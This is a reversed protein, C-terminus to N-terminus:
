KARERQDTRPHGDPGMGAARQARLRRLQKTSWAYVQEIGGPFMTVAVLLMAGYLVLRWEEAIQLLQPLISFILAATVVGRLSALGGVFVMILLTTTYSTDVASPCVVTQYHTLFAGCIATLAASAGFAILRSQLPWIGRTDALVPDDRVATFALSLRSRVLLLIIGVTVCAIALVLYYNGMLDDVVVSGFPLEFTAPPIRTLCLLGGTVENWNKAILQAGLTFGLTGIAFTWDSLRFSPIGIALALIVATPAILLVELIFDNRLYLSILAAGYAGWGIFVPQALSLAGVRGVVLDYAVALSVYMVAFIALSLVYPDQVIWPVLLAVLLTLLWPAIARHAPSM